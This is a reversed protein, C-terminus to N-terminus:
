SQRILTLGGLIPIYESITEFYMDYKWFFQLLHWFIKQPEQM